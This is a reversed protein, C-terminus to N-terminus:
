ENWASHVIWLWCYDILLWLLYIVSCVGPQYVSFSGVSVGVVRGDPSLVMLEIHVFKWSTQLYCLYSPSIVRTPSCLHLCLYTFRTVCLSQLRSPAAYVLVECFLVHVLFLLLPLMESHAHYSGKLILSFMLVKNKDNCQANRLNM